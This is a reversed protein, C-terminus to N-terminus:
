NCLQSRKSFLIKFSTGINVKSEVEITGGMTEIQSKTLFLGIGVADKNKHFTKYMGFLHEGHKKIDIGIGNDSIQLILQDNECFADIKIEPNREPHKYKLSNSILNLLISELYVPNYEVFINKSVKNIIEASKQHIDGKLVFITREIYKHLNVQKLEQNVNTQVMVIENLHVMTNSLEGSVRKVHGMIETKEVPDKEEEALELLIALNNSHSRLNHTAIHAFNILRKNQAKVIDFTKKVEEEKEKQSTIDMVFGNWLFSGDTLQVPQGHGRLWRVGKSPLVVRFDYSWSELTKMSKNVINYVAKFDDKHMRSIVPRADYKVEDPMVEYINWLGSSAFPLTYKKKDPFYRFQYILEDTHELLSQLEAQENAIIDNGKNKIVKM